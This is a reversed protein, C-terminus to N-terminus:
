QKKYSKQKSNAGQLVTILHELGITYKKDRELQSIHQAIEQPSLNELENLMGYTQLINFISFALITSCSDIDIFGQKFEYRPPIKLFVREVTEHQIKVSDPLGLAYFYAYVSDTRWDVRGLITLGSFNCVEKKVLNTIKDEIGLESPDLLKNLKNAQAFGKNKALLNRLKDWTQFIFNDDKKAEGFEAILVLMKSPM